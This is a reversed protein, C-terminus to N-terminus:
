DYIIRSEDSIDIMNISFTSTKSKRDVMHIIHFRGLAMLPGLAVVWLQTTSSREKNPAQATILLSPPGPICGECRTAPQPCIM